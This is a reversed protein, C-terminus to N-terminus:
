LFVEVTEEGSVIKDKHGQLVTIMDCINQLYKEQAEQGDVGEAIEVVGELCPLYAKAQTSASLGVLGFLADEREQRVAGNNIQPPLKISNKNQAKYFDEEYQKDYHGM